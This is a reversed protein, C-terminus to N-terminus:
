GGQHERVYYGGGMSLRDTTYGIEDDDEEFETEDHVDELLRLPVHHSPATKDTITDMSADKGDM